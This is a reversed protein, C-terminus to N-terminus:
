PALGRGGIRHWCGSRGRGTDQSTPKHIGACGNYIPSHLLEDVDVENGLMKYHMALSRLFISTRRDLRLTLPPM